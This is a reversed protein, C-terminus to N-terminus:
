GREAVVSSEASGVSGVPRVPEDVTGPPVRHRQTREEPGNTGVTGVTGNTGVPDAATWSGLLRLAADARPDPATFVVLHCGEDGPLALTEYALDLEGVVPHRFRKTGFTKDRVEQESWMSRFEESRGSLRAVVEALRPDRPRRGGSLRLFGVTQRAVEEWRPYMRRATPDLFVQLALNWRAPAERGPHALLSRALGNADLVDMAPGLVYAPVAGVAALLRKLGDRTGAGGAGAGHEGNEDTGREGGPPATRHATRGDRGRHALDHLHARETPDLLLVRALADLVADSPNRARGQELRTYYVASVGALDAVEERRLGPVRRRDLVTIGASRPTVRSRRVALYRGLENQSKM